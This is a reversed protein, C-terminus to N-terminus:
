EPIMYLSAGSRCKQQDPAEKPQHPLDIEGTAIM